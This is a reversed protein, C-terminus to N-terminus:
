STNPLCAQPPEPTLRALHCMTTASYKVECSFGISSGLANYSMSCDGRIGSAPRPTGAKEYWTISLIQYYYPWNMCSRPPSGRTSNYALDTFLAAVTVQRRSTPTNSHAICGQMTSNRCPGPFSRSCGLLDLCVFSWIDCKYWVSVVEQPGAVSTWRALNM